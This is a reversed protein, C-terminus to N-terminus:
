IHILSLTPSPPLTAICLRNALGLFLFFSSGPLWKILYSKFKSVWNSLSVGVAMGFCINLAYIMKQEAAMFLKSM